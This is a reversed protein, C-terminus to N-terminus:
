ADLLRRTHRAVMLNEDTPVVWASPGSGARSIRPGGQINADVDLTLGIWHADQCVRARIQWAHEGIGGTFVLADLGGLAAVLSGLERGIRYVFLDIAERAAPAESALLTRLDSSVGSVGLLGSRQYVLQEIQQADMREHQMLFLLVGPDLTGCRTGMPLGDLATLGMTNCVARGQDIACMSAGNGLHAVILKGRACAPAVQPLVSVIYEYSLGHFGYRRIGRATLERPLAFERALPPQDHHFATDFCAVQRVRPAAASVARIAAIQHPEHLPALPVLQELDALLRADVLAPQSYKLGGHVVRHGVGDFGAEGGAHGAFWEHIAAIAHQYSTGSLKREALKDGKADGVILQASGGIGEVQGHVDASLSRDAATQFVSFKISSSGANIVLIPAQGV